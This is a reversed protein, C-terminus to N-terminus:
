FVEILDWEDMVFAEDQDQWQPLIKMAGKCQKSTDTAITTQWIIFSPHLESLEASTKMNTEIVVERERFVNRLLSRAGIQSISQCSTLMSKTKNLFSFFVDLCM